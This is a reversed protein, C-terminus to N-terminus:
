RPCAATVAVSASPSGMQAVGDCAAGVHVGELNARPEPWIVTLPAARLEVELAVLPGVLDLDRRVSGNPTLSEVVTVMMTM